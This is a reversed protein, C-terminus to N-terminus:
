DDLFTLKFTTGEGKISNVDITGGFAEVQSKTMFLGVGRADKHHHFTKNLKFINNKHKELDIGLGNDECKLTIEKGNRETSFKVFSKKNIDRYKIANTLLNQMISELYANVFVVSDEKFDEVIKINSEHIESKLSQKLKNLTKIFSLKSKNQLKNLRINIIDTLEKVTQDLNYSVSKLSEFIENTNNRYEENGENREMEYLELLSILNGVPSRLNHSVIYSFDELQRNHKKLTQTKQNLETVKEALESKAKEEITIDKAITIIEQSGDEPDELPVFVFEYAMNENEPNYAKIKKQLIKGTSLAKDINSEIFTRLKVPCQIEDFTKGQLMEPTFGSHKSIAQSVFLHRYNKDLKSIVDPNNDVLKKFLLRSKELDHNAKKLEATRQDLIKSLEEPTKLEFAAPLIKVLSVATVCSVIGTCLLVVANLRYLPLWFILADIFHSIGCLLIFFVFLLFIKKFPINERKISFYLLISPIAFYSGWILLNSIIYMWGHLDSWKGCFWRAPFDTTDFFNNIFYKFADM